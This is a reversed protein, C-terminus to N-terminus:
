APVGKESIIYKVVDIENTLVAENCTVTFTYSRNLEVLQKFAKVQELTVIDAAYFGWTLHRPDSRSMVECLIQGDARGGTFSVRINTDGMFVPRDAGMKLPCIGNQLSVLLKATSKAEGEDACNVAIVPTPTPDSSFQLGGVIVRAM